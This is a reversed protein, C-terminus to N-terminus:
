KCFSLYNLNTGIGPATEFGTSIESFQYINLAGFSVWNEFDDEYGHKRKCDGKGVTPSYKDVIGM